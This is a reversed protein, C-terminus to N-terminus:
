VIEYGVSRKRKCGGKVVAILQGCAMKYNRLLELKIASPRLDKSLKAVRGLITTPGPPVEKRGLSHPEVCFQDPDIM